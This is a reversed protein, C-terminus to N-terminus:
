LNILGEDIRKIRAQKEEIKTILERYQPDKPDRLRNLQGQHTAIEKQLDGKLREGKKIREERKIRQQEIPAEDPHIPHGQNLKFRILLEHEIRNRKEFPKRASEAVSLMTKRDAGSMGLVREFEDRQPNTLGKGHGVELYFSISQHIADAIEKKDTLKGALLDERRAM